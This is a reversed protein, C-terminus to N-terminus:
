ITDYSYANTISTTIVTMQFGLCINDAYKGKLAQVIKPKDVSLGGENYALKGCSSDGWTYLEGNALMILCHNYGSYVDVITDPPAWMVKTPLSIRSNFGTCQSDSNDGFSYLDGNKLLILSHRAGVAIKSIPQTFPKLKFLKNNTLAINDVGLEGYTNNGISYLIGKDLTITIRVM